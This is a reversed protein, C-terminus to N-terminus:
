LTTSKNWIRSLRFHLSMLFDFPVTDWFCARIVSGFFLLKNMIM